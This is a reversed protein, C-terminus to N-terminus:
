IGAHAVLDHLRQDVRHGPLIELPAVGAVARM